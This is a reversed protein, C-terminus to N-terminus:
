QEGERALQPVILQLFQPPTVIQINEFVRPFHKINGTIIYEAGAADACELFRNDPEDRKIEKINRIPQVLEAADRIDALSDEIRKPAFKLRPRHLVEEYEALVAASVYMRIKKDIALSLVAASPGEDVLNASVVVNTDIVVRIM